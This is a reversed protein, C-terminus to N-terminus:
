KGSSSLAGGDSVKRRKDSHYWDEWSEKEERLERIQKFLDKITKEKGELIKEAEELKSKTEWHRSEWQEASTKYTAVSRNVKVIEEELHANRKELSRMQTTLVSAEHAWTERKKDYDDKLMKCKLEHEKRDSDRQAHADKIDQRMRETLDLMRDVVNLDRKAQQAENSICALTTANSSGEM